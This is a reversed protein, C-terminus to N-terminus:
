GFKPPNASPAPRASVGGRAVLLDAIPQNQLRHAMDLPTMREMDHRANINAGADLLHKVVDAHGFEIATFLPQDASGGCSLLYDIKKVNGECVAVYMARPWTQRDIMFYPAAGYQRLFDAVRYHGNIVAMDFAANIGYTSPTEVDSRRDIKEAKYIVALRHMATLRGYRAATQFFAGRDVNYRHGTVCLAELAADIRWRKGKALEALIATEQAYFPLQSYRVVMHKYRLHDQYARKKGPLSSM